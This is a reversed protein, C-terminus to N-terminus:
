EGGHLDLKALHCHKTMMGTLKMMTEAAPQFILQVKSCLIFITQLKSTTGEKRRHFTPKQATMTAWPIVILSM